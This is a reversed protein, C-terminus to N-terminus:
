ESFWQAKQLLFEGPFLESFKGREVADFMRNSVTTIEEPLKFRNLFMSAKRNRKIIDMKHNFIILGVPCKNIIFEIEEVM